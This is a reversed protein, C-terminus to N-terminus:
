SCFDLSLEKVLLDSTAWRDSSQRRIGVDIRQLASLM